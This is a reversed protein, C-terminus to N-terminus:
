VRGSSSLPTQHVVDDDGAEAPHPARCGVVEGPAALPHEPQLPVGRRVVPAGAVPLGPDDALRVELVRGVHRQEQPGVLQPLSQLRSVPSSRIVSVPPSM